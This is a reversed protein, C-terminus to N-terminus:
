TTIKGVKNRRIYGIIITVLSIIICIYFSIGRSLLGTHVALGPPMFKSFGQIMLYDVVGQAGPIPACNSGIVAFAQSFWIDFIHNFKGGLGLYVFLTITIQTIRQALNLLFAVILMKGKGLAIDSIASYKKITEEWREKKKEPKRIIHIKGLLSIGWYGLKEMWKPEKLLMFFFLTLVSMIIFGLVIFTKGFDNFQMFIDPRVIFSLIAVFDIAFSYMLLNLVLCMTAKSFSIGDKKMFYFSAPQGGSASPTIASFYIDAASYLFAQRHGVKVSIHKLIYKIAAGELYIYLIVSVVSLAIFGKKGHKILIWADNVSFGKAQSTIATVTLVAIIITIVTWLINKFIDKKAKKDM